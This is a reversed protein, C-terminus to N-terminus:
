SKKKISTTLTFVRCHHSRPPKYAACRGCLTLDGMAGEEEEEESKGEEEDREGVVNDLPSADSPVAGPDAFM